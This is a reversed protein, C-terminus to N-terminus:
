GYVSNRNQIFIVDSVPGKRLAGTMESEMRDAFKGRCEFVIRRLKVKDAPIPENGGCETYADLINSLREMTKRVIDPVTGHEPEISVVLEEHDLIEGLLDTFGDEIKCSGPHETLCTVCGVCRRIRIDRLCVDGGFGERDAIVFRDADMIRSRNLQWIFGRDM